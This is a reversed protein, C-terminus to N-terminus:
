SIIKCNKMRKGLIEAFVKTVINRSLNADEIWDVNIFFGFSEIQQKLIYIESARLYSDTV